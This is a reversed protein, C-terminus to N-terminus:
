NKKMQREKLFDISNEIGGPADQVGHVTTIIHIKNEM